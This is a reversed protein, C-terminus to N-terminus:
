KLRSHTSLYNKINNLSLKGSEEYKRLDASIRDLLQSITYLNDFTNQDFPNDCKDNGKCKFFEKYHRGISYSLMRAEESFRAKDASNKILADVYDAEKELDKKDLHNALKILQKIM